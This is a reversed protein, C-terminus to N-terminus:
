VSATEKAPACTLCYTAGTRVHYRVSAGVGVPQQCGDCLAGASLELSEYGELPLSQGRIKKPIPAAKVIQKRFCEDIVRWREVFREALGARRACEALLEERYDFLEDDIVMWHHANRPRDGFYDRSGSIKDRLFEYQKDIARGKTVRQFFPALRPDVFVRTYFDELIVRLLRGEELAEWFAPDPDLDGARQRRGGRRSAAAV